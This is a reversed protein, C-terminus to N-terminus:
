QFTLCQDICNTSHLVAHHLLTQLSSYKGPKLLPLWMSVIKIFFTALAIESSASCNMINESFFSHLIFICTQSTELILMKLSGRQPFLDHFMHHPGMNLMLSQGHMQLPCALSGCSIQLNSCTCLVKSNM